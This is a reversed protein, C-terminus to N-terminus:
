LGGADDDPWNPDNMLHQGWRALEILGADAGLNDLQAV